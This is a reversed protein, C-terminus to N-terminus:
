KEAPESCKSLFCQSGQNTYNNSFSDSTTFTLERFERASYKLPVLMCGALDFPFNALYCFDRAQELYWFCNNSARYLGQIQEGMAYILLVQIDLDDLLMIEYQKTYSNFYELQRNTILDLAFARDKAMKQSTTWFLYLTQAYYVRSAPGCGDKDCYSCKNCPDPLNRLINVYRYCYFKGQAKQEQGALYFADTLKQIQKQNCLLFKIFTNTKEQEPNYDQKYYQFGCNAM